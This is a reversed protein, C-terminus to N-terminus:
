LFRVWFGNSREGQNEFLHKDQCFLLILYPPYRGTGSPKEVQFVSAVEAISLIGSSRAKLELKQRGVSYVTHIAVKLNMNGPLIDGAKLLDVDSNSEYNLIVVCM